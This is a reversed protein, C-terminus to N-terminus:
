RVNEGILKEIGARNYPKMMYDVLIGEDIADRIEQNQQYGSLIMCPLTENIKKVARIFELGDMTPMKMDSVVFRIDPIKLIIELGETGSFATLVDYNKSFTIQFVQLNIEEDDVCLIKIKKEM